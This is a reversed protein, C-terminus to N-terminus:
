QGGINSVYNGNLLIKSDYSGFVYFSTNRETIFVKTTRSVTSFLYEGVNTFPISKNSNLEIVDYRIISSELSLLTKNIPLYDIHLPSIDLDLKHVTLNDFPSIFSSPLHSFIEFDQIFTALVNNEVLLEVVEQLSLFSLDFSINNVTLIGNNYRIDQNTQIHFLPIKNKYSIDTKTKETYDYNKYKPVPIDKVIKTKEYLGIKKILTKDM